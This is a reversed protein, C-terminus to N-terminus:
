KAMPKIYKTGLGHMRWANMANTKSLLHVSTGAASLTEPVNGIAPVQAHSLKKYPSDLGEHGGIISTPEICFLFHEYRLYYELYYAM